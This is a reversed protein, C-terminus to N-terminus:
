DKKVEAQWNKTVLLRTQSPANEEPTSKFMLFRGDAAVDYIVGFILGSGTRLAANSFLATPTGTVPVGDREGISVSMVQDGSVFFLERGDRSWRPQTGGMSSVQWRSRLSPYPRVFIQPQGSEASQYALWRGDPSVTAHRQPNPLELLTRVDSGAALKAARLDSGNAATVDEDFLVTADPVVASPRQDNRSTTLREPHGTGDAAITYLNYAGGASSAYVIRQSDATWTPLTDVAPDFTLRILTKRAIEWIWLDEDQDRAHLAIRTGDPSIRAFAYRREPVGVPEERGQRDVWILTRPMGGGVNGVAHVLVGTDSAAFGPRGPPTFAVPRTVVAPEGVLTLARVDLRQTMLADGQVFLLNDPPAFEAMAPTTVLRTRKDDDLSGIWVGWDDRSDAQVFYLFHRGDPLFRPGLHAEQSKATVRTVATSAGGGANIRLIGGTTPTSYLVMGERNASGSLQTGLVDTLVRLAGSRIDLIRLKHAPEDFYGLTRGDPFWFPGQVSTEQAALTAPLPQPAVNDFRRIWLQYPGTNATGAEFLVSSGDASLAFRPIQNAGPFVMGPPPEIEFRVVDPVAAPALARMTFFVIAAAAAASAAGATLMPRWRRVPAVPAPVAADATLETGHDLVFLVGGIDSMRRRRDKDLCSRLLSRVAPSTTAPLAHWPPEARLTAAITDTIDEGPFARAGALMEFLVCGFAWVDSRKDAPRGKAQEPSMYAATGLLMGAGTMMAPSTITPSLSTGSAVPGSVVPELLKALGFDLVKVVGDRTVKINAPKLDRHIIGQEHAAELAEAIQRAIPLADDLPVPGRAIRDALTEGDVLELVLAPAGGSEEMGYIAAIRPHNLSALLQAERRFRALRDADASLHPPLVKLAVDRGLKTDRARFVEGM